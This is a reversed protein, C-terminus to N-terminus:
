GQCRFLHLQHDIQLLLKHQPVVSLPSLRLHPLMIAVSLLLVPTWFGQQCFNLMESCLFEVEKNAYHHSGRQTALHIKEASWPKMHLPVGAGQRWSAKHPLTCVNTALDALGREGVVFLNWNGYHALTIAAQAAYKRLTGRSTHTATIGHGSRTGTEHARYYPGHDGKTSM